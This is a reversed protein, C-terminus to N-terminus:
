SSRFWRSSRSLTRVASCRAASHGERPAGLGLLSKTDEILLFRTPTWKLGESHGSLTVRPAPPPPVELIHWKRRVESVFMAEPFNVAGGPRGGGGVRRPRSLTRRARVSSWESAREACKMGLSNTEVLVDGKVARVRLLGSGVDGKFLQSTKPFSFAWRRLRFFFPLFPSFSVRRLGM